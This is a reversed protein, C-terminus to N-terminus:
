CKVGSNWLAHAMDSLAKGISQEDGFFGVARKLLGNGGWVFLALSISLSCLIKWLPYGSFNRLCPTLIM